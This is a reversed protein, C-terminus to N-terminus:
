VLVRNTCIVSCVYMYEHLVDGYTCSFNAHIEMTATRSANITYIQVVRWPNIHAIKSYITWFVGHIFWEFCKMLAYACGGPTNKEMCAYRTHTCRQTCRGHRTMNEFNQVLSFYTKKHRIRYNSRPISRVVELIRILAYMCAHMCVVPICPNCPCWSQFMYLCVYVHMYVHMCVHMVCVHMCVHLLFALIVHVDARSCICVCMCMCIFMCVYM